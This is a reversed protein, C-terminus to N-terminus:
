FRCWVMVQWCDGGAENCATSARNSPLSSDKTLASLWALFDTFDAPNLMVDETRDLAALRSVGTTLAEDSLWKVCDLKFDDRAPRTM